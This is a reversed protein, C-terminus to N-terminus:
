QCFAAAWGEDRFRTATIMASLGPIVSGSKLGSPLSFIGAGILNKTLNMWAATVPPPAQLSGGALSRHLSIAHFDVHIADNINM